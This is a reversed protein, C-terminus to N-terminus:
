PKPAVTISLGDLLESGKSDELLLTFTFIGYDSATGAITGGGLTLGPPLDGDSITWRYPPVGGSAVLKQSYQTGVVGDPLKVTSVSLQVGQNQTSSEIASSADSCGALFLLLIGVSLFLLWKQKRM